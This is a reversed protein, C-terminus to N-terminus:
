TIKMITEVTRPHSAHIATPAINQGYAEGNPKAPIMRNPIKSDVAMIEADSDAPTMRITRMSTGPMMACLLPCLGSRKRIVIPQKRVTMMSHIEM